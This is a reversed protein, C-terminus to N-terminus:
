RVSHVSQVTLGEFIDIGIEFESHLNSIPISKKLSYDTFFYDTKTNVWDNKLIVVKIYVRYIDSHLIQICHCRLKWICDNGEWGFAFDDAIFPIVNLILYNQM